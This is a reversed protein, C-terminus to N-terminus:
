TLLLQTIILDTLLIMICSAVISYTGARGVDLSGGKAYYGYYAPITTIILSYVAMKIITYTVYFPNFYMQVGTIFDGLTIIQTASIGAIFVGGLIGVFMSLIALFPNFVVSAVVKPLILYNASNIGMIEMADIQETIRMSGIESTINSGIKGALILAIVTSSFELLIVDRSALGIYTKPILPSEFNLSLQITIVAGMFFSMLAVISISSLGLKEVEVGTQRFFVRSNDPLVFVKKMLLFYQGVMTLARKIMNNLGNHM